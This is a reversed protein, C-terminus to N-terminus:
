ASSTQQLPAGLPQIDRAAGVHALLMPIDDELVGALAWQLVLTGAWFRARDILNPLQPYTPEMRRVISEGYYHLLTAIDTAPDGLGATGFDIVGSLRRASPDLLVHYTALDGHILAPEFHLDLEGELVPAFHESVWERQHRWLHPFLVRELQEYFSLWDERTRNAGSLSVGADDLAGKPIGHLRGLFTSLQEVIRNQLPISIRLLTERSLPEGEILSYSAFDEELHEFHPLPLGAHRRAVDLVRAEHALIDKARKTRPFRCVLKRNIIVIDNVLGDQNLELHDLPLNPYVARITQLYRSPIDVRAGLASPQIRRARLFLPRARVLHAGQPGPPYM